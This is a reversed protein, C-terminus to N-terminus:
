NTKNSKSRKSKKKPTKQQNLGSIIDKQSEIINVLPLIVQIPSNVTAAIIFGRRTSFIMPITAFLLMENIKKNSYDDPFKVVAFGEINLSVPVGKGKLSLNFDIMFRCKKEIHQKPIVFFKYPKYNKKLKYGYGKIVFELLNLPSHKM